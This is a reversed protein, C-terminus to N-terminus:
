SHNFLLEPFVFCSFHSTKSYSVWLNTINDKNIDPRTLIGPVTYLPEGYENVIVVSNYPGGALEIWKMALPRPENELHGGSAFFDLFYEVFYSELLMATPKNEVVEKHTNAIFSALMDRNRDVMQKNLMEIENSM